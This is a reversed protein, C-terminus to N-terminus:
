KKRGKRILKILIVVCVVVAAAVLVIVLPSITKKAEEEVMDEIPLVDAYGSLACLLMLPLSGLLRVLKKMM